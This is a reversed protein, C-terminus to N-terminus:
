LILPACVSISAFQHLNIIFNNVHDKTAYILWLPYSQGYIHYSIFFFHNARNTVYWHKNVFSIDETLRDNFTQAHEVRDRLKEESRLRYAVHWHLESLDEVAADHEALLINFYHFIQM